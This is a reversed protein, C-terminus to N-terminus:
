REKKWGKFGERRGASGVFVVSEQTGPCSEWAAHGKERCAAEDSGSM